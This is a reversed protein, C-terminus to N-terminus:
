PTEGIFRAHNGASDVTWYARYSGAGDSGQMTILIKKASIDRIIDISESDLRPNFCDRYFETPITLRRGDFSVMFTAIRKTPMEGDTGYVPHGDISKLISKQM